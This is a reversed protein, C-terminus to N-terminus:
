YILHHVVIKIENYCPISIFLKWYSFVLFYYMCCVINLKITSFCSVEGLFILVLFFTDLLLIRDPQISSTDLMVAELGSFSYSYLVPQIMTLCEGVSERNLM